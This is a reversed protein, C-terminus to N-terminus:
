IKEVDIKVITHNGVAYPVPYVVCIQKDTFYSFVENNNESDDSSKLYELIKEDSIDSFYTDIDCFPEAQLNKIVERFLKLFKEDINTMDELKILKSTKLDINLTYFLHTGHPARRPNFFGQFVISIYSKSLYKIDYNLTLETHGMDYKDDTDKECDVAERLAGLKIIENIQELNIINSDSKFQPYTIYINYYNNQLKYIVPEIDSKEIQTDSSILKIFDYSNLTPTKTCGTILFFILILGFLIIKSLRKECVRIHRGEKATDM